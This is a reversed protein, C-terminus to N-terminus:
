QLIGAAEDAIRDLERSLKRDLRWRGFWSLMGARRRADSDEAWDHVVLVFAIAMLILALVFWLQILAIM